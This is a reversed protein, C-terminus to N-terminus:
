AEKDIRASALPEAALDLMLTIADHGIGRSATQYYHRRRGVPTFGLAHYLRAAAANPEAYELFLKGVGATKAAAIVAHMLHRGHGRGQAQPLIGTLLVEGEDLTFRAVAFGLPADGEELLWGCAGPMALSQALSDASWARDWPATFIAAHLEALLAIDFVGVPRIRAAVAPGPETM